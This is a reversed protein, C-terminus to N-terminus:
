PLIIQIADNYEKIYKDRAVIADEYTNFGSLRVYKKKVAIRISWKNNKLLYPKANCRISEIKRLSDEIEKCIAVDPQKPNEGYKIECYKRFNIASQLAIAESGFVIFSFRQRIKIDNLTFRSTYSDIVGNYKTTIIGVYSTKNNIHRKKKLCNLSQPIEELNEIKNNLGNGDVHNIVKNSDLTGYTLLYVIRHASYGKSELKVRWYQKEHNATSITGVEDDIENSTNRISKSKLRLGSKSTKDVYFHKNLLDFDLSIVKSPANINFITSKHLLYLRMEIDIAEDKTLDTFVVEVTLPNDKFYNVWESNRNLSSYPRSKSGSGVYRVIGNADKHLYVCKNNM